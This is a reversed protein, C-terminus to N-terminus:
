AKPWKIAHLVILVHFGIELASYWYYYAWIEDPGFLLGIALLIHLSGMVINVIRNVAPKLILSLFAMVPPISMLIASYLVVAQNIVMSGIHGSMIQEIVGTELYMKVDAYVYFFMVGIWLVSLKVRVSVKEDKWHITTSANKNM